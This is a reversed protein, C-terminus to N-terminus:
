TLRKIAKKSTEKITDAVAILGAYNGDISALMATKGNAELEEMSTTHNSIDVNYKKMLKRTGVLVEKDDVITKVGYGPIAEFEQVIEFYYEEKRFEKLLQKQLHINQNNKQQM